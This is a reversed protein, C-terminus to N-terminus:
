GDPAQLLLNIIQFTLGALLSRRSDVFFILCPEYKSAEASCQGRQALVAFVAAAPGRSALSKQTAFASSQVIIRIGMGSGREELYNRVQNAARETFSLAM